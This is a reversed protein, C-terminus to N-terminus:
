IQSRGGDVFLEIGTVYSSDVSALFLAAKAIESPQGLLFSCFPGPGPGAPGLSFNDALRGMISSAAISNFNKETNEETGGMNKLASTITPCRAFSLVTAKTASDVSVGASGKVSVNSGFLIISGGEVFISSAKLVTFLVCKVNLNFLDDFKKTISELPELSFIGAIKIINDIDDLKAEDFEM